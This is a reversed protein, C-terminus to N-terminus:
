ENNLKTDLRVVLHCLESYTLDLVRNNGAYIREIRRPLQSNLPKLQDVPTKKAKRTWKQGSRRKYEAVVAKSM